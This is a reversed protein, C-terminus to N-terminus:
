NFGEQSRPNVPRNVPFIPRGGTLVAAVNRATLTKLESFSERSYWGMHDSLVLGEIGRLNHDPPLPEKDFVDLGAAGLRGEKLAELLDDTKVIPGRATNILIAGRHMLSLTRRCILHRTEDKLPLHLSVIDARALAEELTAKRGGAETIHEPNETPDVVLIEGPLFGKIKRVFAQGSGGFGLVAVTKGVLRFVRDNQSPTWVGERLQRDRKAIHRVCSLLLGMAQDSVEENCYNRCHAVWIGARTCAEVAVNDYGVGYRAVVKLRPLQEVVEAPMPSLNLCIGDVGKAMELWAEPKPERTTVVDIDVEKFVSMEEEYSNHGYDIIAVVPRPM